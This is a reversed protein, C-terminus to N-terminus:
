EKLGDIQAELRDIKDALREIISLLGLVSSTELRVMPTPTERIFLLPKILELDKDTLSM